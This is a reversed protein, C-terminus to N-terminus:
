IGSVAPRALRVRGDPIMRRLRVTAGSLRGTEDLVVIPVVSCYRSLIHRGDLLEKELGPDQVNDTKDYLRRPLELFRRKVKDTCGAVTLYAM